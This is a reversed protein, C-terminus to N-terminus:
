FTQLPEGKLRGVFRRVCTLTQTMRERQLFSLLSEELSIRVKSGVGLDRERSGGTTSESLSRGGLPLGGPEPGAESDRGVTPMGSPVKM